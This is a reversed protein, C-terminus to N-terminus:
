VLPQTKATLTWTQLHYQHGHAALTREACSHRSPQPQGAALNSFVASLFGSLVVITWLTLQLRSLSIKNREDILLGRWLGTNGQGAVAAFVGLLVLAIVWGWLKARTPFLLGTLAV